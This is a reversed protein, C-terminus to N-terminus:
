SKIHKAEFSRLDDCMQNINDSVPISRMNCLRRIDHENADEYNTDIVIKDAATLWKIYDSKTKALRLYGNYNHKSENIYRELIDWDIYKYELLRPQSKIDYTIIDFPNSFRIGLLPMYITNNKGIRLIEKMMDISAGRTDFGKLKCLRELDYKNGYMYDSNEIQKDCNRLKSIITDRDYTNIEKKEDLILTRWLMDRLDEMSVDEYILTIKYLEVRTATFYKPPFIYFPLPSGPDYRQFKM